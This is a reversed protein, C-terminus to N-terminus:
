LSLTRNYYIPGCCCGSKSIKLMEALIDITKLMEAFLMKPVDQPFRKNERKKERVKGRKREMRRKCQGSELEAPEIEFSLNVKIPKKSPAATANAAATTPAATAAAKATTAAAVTAPATFM